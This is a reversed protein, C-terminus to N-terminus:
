CRLDRMQVSRELSRRVAQPMELWLKQLTFHAAEMDAKEFMACSIPLQFACSKRGSTWYGSTDSSGCAVKCTGVIRM